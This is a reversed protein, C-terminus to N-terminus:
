LSIYLICQLKSYTIFLTKPFQKTQEIDHYRRVKTVIELNQGTGGEAELIMAKHRATVVFLRDPKDKEAGQPRFFKMVQLLAYINDIIFHRTDSSYQRNSVYIVFVLMEM